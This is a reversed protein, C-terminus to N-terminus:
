CFANIGQKLYNVYSVNCVMKGDCDQHYGFDKKKANYSDVSYEQHKSAFDAFTNIDLGVSALCKDLVTKSTGGIYDMIYKHEAVLADDKAREAKQREQQKALLLADINELQERTIAKLNYKQKMDNYSMHGKYDQKISQLEKESLDEIKRERLNDKINEKLNDKIYDSTVIGQSDNQSNRKENKVIGKSLSYDSTVIGEPLSYDSKVIVKLTRYKSAQGNNSVTKTNRQIINNDALKKMARTVQQTSVGFADAFKKDSMYCVQENRELETIQAVILKELLSLEKNSLLEKNVQLFNNSM